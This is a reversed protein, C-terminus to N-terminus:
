RPSEWSPVDDDGGGKDVGDPGMSYLDYGIPNVTGPFKYRYKNGWPDIPDIQLYPEARDGSRLADLSKPYSGHDLRYVNLATNISRMDGFAIKRKTSDPIGMLFPTVMSALAAIIIVVILVEILTFGNNKM